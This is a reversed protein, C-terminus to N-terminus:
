FPHTHRTSITFNFHHFPMRLQWQYTAQYPSALLFHGNLFQKKHAIMIATLFNDKDNSVHMFIIEPVKQREALLFAAM